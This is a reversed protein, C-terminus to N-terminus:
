DENRIWGCCEFNDKSNGYVQVPDLKTILKKQSLINCVRYAANTTLSFKAAVQKTTKEELNERHTYTNIWNLIQESIGLSELTTTQTKM